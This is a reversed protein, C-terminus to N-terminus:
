DNNKLKIKKCCGDKSTTCNYEKCKGIACDECEEWDECDCCHNITDNPETLSAYNSTFKDTM